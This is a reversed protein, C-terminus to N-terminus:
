TNYSVASGCKGKRALLFLSFSWPLCFQFSHWYLCSRCSCNRCWHCSCFLRIEKQPRWKKLLVTWGSGVHEAIFEKARCSNNSGWYYSQCMFTHLHSVSAFGKRIIKDTYFGPICLEAPCSFPDCHPIETLLGDGFGRLLDMSSNTCRPKAWWCEVLDMHLGSHILNSCGWGGTIFSGRWCVRYSCYSPFVEKGVSASGWLSCSNLQM